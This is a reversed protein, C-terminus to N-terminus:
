LMLSYAYERIIRYEQVRGSEKKKNWLWKDDDENGDDNEKRNKM